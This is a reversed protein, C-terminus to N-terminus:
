GLFFGLFQSASTVGSTPHPALISCPLDSELTGGGLWLAAGGVGPLPRAPVSGNLVAAVAAAIPQRTHRLGLNATGMGYGAGVMLM